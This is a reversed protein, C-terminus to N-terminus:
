QPFLLSISVVARKYFDISVMRVEIFSVAKGFLPTIQIDVISAIPFASSCALM